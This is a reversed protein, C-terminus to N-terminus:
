TIIAIDVVSVAIILHLLLGYTVHVVPDGKVNSLHENQEVSPLYAANEQHSSDSKGTLQLDDSHCLLYVLTHLTEYLLLTLQTVMAMLM